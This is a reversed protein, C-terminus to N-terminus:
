ARCPIPSTRCSRRRIAPRPRASRKPGPRGVPGWDREGDTSSQLDPGQFYWGALFSGDKNQVVGDEFLAAWNLLDAVGAAKNRFMKLALM